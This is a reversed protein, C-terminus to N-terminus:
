REPRVVPGTHSVLTPSGPAPEESPYAGAILKKVILIFVGTLLLNLALSLIAVLLTPGGIGYSLSIVLVGAGVEGRPFMGVAVALRERWTAERRYCFAPFLKGINSIITILVVHVAIIGWGPFANKAELVHQPVGEYMLVKASSEAPVSSGAGLIPPMSLGVLVMFAASVITSVLQETPQEPGPETGEPELHSPETVHEPGRLVCGLVFAPLLVELHVPVLPDVQMSGLHILESILTIGAAYSLVWPWTVPLTWANLYKWAIWLLLVIVLVIVLLQWKVGVMMIKLPIMLLITDLDDFIALIRAKRFVWTAGLGAAALMAFLVGASTPSAFRSELLVEKWLDPHGWVARPSMVYVFYLACFIWPFAAATFAVFYDWAYKRPQSRDIDFEFGVHIMIFSLALMTLLRIPTQFAAPTFQSAILGLVLLLSYILVKRM